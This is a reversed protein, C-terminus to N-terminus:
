KAILMIFVSFSKCAAPSDFGFNVRASMLLLARSIARSFALLIRSESVNDFSVKTLVFRNLFRLSM